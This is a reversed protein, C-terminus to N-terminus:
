HIRAIRAVRSGGAGDLRVFYLGAPQARGARDRGDWRTRHRGAELPGAALTALERGNVDFVRLTAADAHPLVFEVITGAASPNPWARLALPTGARAGDGVALVGQEIQNRLWSASQPTIMVHEQNAGTPFYVADFPTHSLIAADGAVNYFPNSTALDLASITPVFCHSPHTAVIDGLPVATTDMQTMTARSGGPANDWPLTGNVTVTQQTVTFIVRTRGKFIDHSTANPVAWVDGTVDAALSSYEYRILTDGPLFGQGVQTGSGNAMAVLRPLSPTTGVAALDALWGARVSDPQGTSAPPDTYHYLLMQRAAPRNLDALLSAADTSQSSFFRVWYQIGLPINAGKHPGDVSIFTRVRHPVGHFELWALAYRGVLAGMSPGVLAITTTPDITQEIQDLLATAVFANRQMWDTADTFNLVVEDFGHATLTDALGQQNLEQYLEDWNMSNDLDFGELVVVPNSITAHGPALRVYADGSATAGRYPVTAAIHLTDDPTPSQLARVEFAARAERRTGDSLTAVLHLTKSGVSRYRATLRGGIRLAQLGSGDDLDVEVARPRAGGLWREPALAFEVEAGRYTHDLLAALAFVRSGVLADQNLLELRDGVQRAAGRDLAGPQLRDYARDLVALPIVPDRRAAARVEAMLVRPDPTAGPVDSARRVQDVMQRWQAASAVPSAPGGDFRELAVLSLVRDALVGSPPALPAAAVGSGAFGLLALAAALVRV